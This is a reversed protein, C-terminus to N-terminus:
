HAQLFELLSEVDGKAASVAGVEIPCASHEMRFEEGARGLTRPRSADDGGGIDSMTSQLSRTKDLLGELRHKIATVRADLTAAERLEDDEESSSSPSPDTSGAAAADGEMLDAKNIAVFFPTRRAVFIPDVLLTYLLQSAKGLTDPQSGDVVFVVGKSVPKLADLKVRQSAHGPLDVFRQPAAAKGQLQQPAFVADNEKMSTQTPRFLGQKLRFYLASKGSGMPGLLLWTDGRQGTASFRTRYIYFAVLLVLGLVAATVVPDLSSLFEVLASPTEDVVAAPVEISANDLLSAAADEVVGAAPQAAAAAAAAGTSTAAAIKEAAAVAAKKVTKKAAGKAAKAAAGIIKGTADVNLGPIPPMGAQLLSSLM